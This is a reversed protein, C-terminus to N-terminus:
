QFSRGLEKIESYFGAVRLTIEIPHEEINLWYWGHNGSFPAVISGSSNATESERYRIFYDDPYLNADKGPDAHFDTYVIGENVSWSYIITDGQQLVAKYEVQEGSGLKIILESSNFATNSTKSFPAGLVDPEWSDFENPIPPFPGQILNLEIDQNTQKESEETLELLGLKGGIGTPDIGYEAPLVFFIALVLALLFIGGIKNITLGSSNSESSQNNEKTM